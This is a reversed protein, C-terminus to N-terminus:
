RTIDFDYEPGCRLVTLGQEEWMRCVKKRDDFVGVVNFRFKIKKEYIERKVDVDSRRDGCARMFFHDYALNNTKLWEKTLTEGTASGERGSLIIITEGAEKLVRLLSAVTRDVIDLNYKEEYPGRVGEHHALTGDIDFIYARPLYKLVDPDVADPKMNDYWMKLIVDKGVSDDRMLDRKICTEVPVFYPSAPDVFDVLVLEAGFKKAMAEWHAKHSKGLNTDDNICDLGKSLADRMRQDRISVAKAEVTKLFKGRIWEPQEKRIDDRNVRVMTPNKAVLDKAFTSKGSGPFGKTYYLKM